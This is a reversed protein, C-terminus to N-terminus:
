LVVGFVKEINMMKKENMILIARDYESQTLGRWRRISIWGFDAKIGHYQATDYNSSSISWKYGTWFSWGIFSRRYSAFLTVMYMGPRSPPNDGSFWQTQSEEPWGIQGEYKGNRKQYNDNM